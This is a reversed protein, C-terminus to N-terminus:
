MSVVNIIQVWNVVINHIALQQKFELAILTVVQWLGVVNVNMVMAWVLVNDVNLLKM